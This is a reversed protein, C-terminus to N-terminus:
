EQSAGGHFTYPTKTPFWVGIDIVEYDKSNGSYWDILKQRGEQLQGLTQFRGREGTSQIKVFGVKEPFKEFGHQYTPVLDSTVNKPKDWSMM